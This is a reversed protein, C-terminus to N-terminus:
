HPTARLATVQSILIAWHVFVFCVVLSHFHNLPIKFAGPALVSDRPESARKARRIAALAVTCLPLLARLVFALDAAALVLPLLGICRGLKRKVM